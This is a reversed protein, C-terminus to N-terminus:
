KKNKDSSFSIEEEKPTASLKDITSNLEAIYDNAEKLKDNAESLQNEFHARENLAAEKDAKLQEIETSQEDVKSQLEANVDSNDDNSQDDVSADKKPRGRKAGGEFEFHIGDPDVEKLRDAFTDSVEVFEDSVLYETQTDKDIVKSNFKVKKM